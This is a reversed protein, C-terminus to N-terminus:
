GSAFFSWFRESVINWLSVFRSNNYVNLRKLENVDLLVAWNIDICFDKISVEIFVIFFPVAFPCIETRIVEV